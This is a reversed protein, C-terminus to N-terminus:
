SLPNDIKKSKLHLRKRIRSLSEPKMGLYSAIQHLPARQFLDPRNELLRLYRQEPSSHKYEFLEEQYNSIFIDYLKRSLSELQPYKHYLDTELSPTGVTVVTDEICEYNLKSPLNKGYSPPTVSQSETYFETTVEEGDENYYSRICGKFILFCENSIQGESLLLTNKSFQKIFACEKLAEELDSTVEVYKSLHQILENQM